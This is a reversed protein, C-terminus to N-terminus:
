SMIYQGIEDIGLNGRIDRAWANGENRGPWM